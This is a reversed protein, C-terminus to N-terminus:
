KVPALRATVKVGTGEALVEMTAPRLGEAHAAALWQTFADFPVGSGSVALGAPDGKIDLQLGLGQAANSLNEQWRSADPAAAATRARLRVLEAADEQMAKLQAQAAPLALALRRSEKQTWAFLSWVLALAVCVAGISLIRREREARKMWAARAATLLNPLTANSAM